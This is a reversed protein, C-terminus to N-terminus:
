TLAVKTLRAYGDMSHVRISDSSVIYFVDELALGRVSTEGINYMTKGSDALLDIAALSQFKSGNWAYMRYAWAISGAGSYGWDMTPFGILGREVDVFASKHDQSVETDTGPITSMAKESVNYPDRIDFMSIKLGETLMRGDDDANVGIGLLLGDGFPHLYSSFGPIKLASRIEPKTPKSLDITFLPDMQRFTVVYGIPGDFRVSQISENVVLEPISGVLKLSSDLVWLSAMPIWSGQKTDEWTTAVRLHGDLEDMAFQNVMAGAVATEAELELAGKNLAIRMITTYSGTYDKTLGAITVETDLATDIWNTSALYLNTPSMYATDSNGLIAKESLVQRNSLDIATAVSYAPASVGPLVHVDEPTVPAVGGQDDGVCPVFTRPSSPDVGEPSVYYRSVLYLVGDLLRSEVYSGSQSVTSLYVPHTPDSIDYFGVKLSSAELNVWTGSSASWGDLNADFAHSLVALTTGHIMMAAVPGALIEDELRPTSLDISAVQRSDAGQASVIRVQRGRAVYLYSGDTKVIDGEDIGAVQVNTGTSSSYGDFSASTLTVTGTYAPVPMAEYVLGQKGFGVVGSDRADYGTAALTRFIEDYGDAGVAPTTPEPTQGSGTPVQAPIVLDPGMAPGPVFSFPLGALVMVVALGTAVLGGSLVGLRRRSRTSMGPRRPNTVPSPRGTPTPRGNWLPRAIHHDPEVGPSEAELAAQLQALVASDPTMRARMQHFHTVLEDKDTM